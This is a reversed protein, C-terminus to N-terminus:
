YFWYDKQILTNGKNIGIYIQILEEINVIREIKREYSKYVSQKEWKDM